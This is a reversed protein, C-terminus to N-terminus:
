AFHNIVAEYITQGGEDARVPVIFLSFRGLAAHSFRHTGQSVTDRENARFTLAFCEGAHTRQRRARAQAQYDFVGVLTADFATRARTTLRFTSNLYQAFSDRTFYFPADIKAEYPVAFPQANRPGNQGFALKSPSLTFGALLTSATGARLFNRRSLSM